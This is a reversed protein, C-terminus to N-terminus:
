SLKIDSLKFLTIVQSRSPLISVKESPAWSKNPYVESSTIPLILTLSKLSPWTTKPWTTLQNFSDTSFPSHTPFVTKRALSRVSIGQSILIVGVFSLFPLWIPVLPTVFCKFSLFGILGLILKIVLINV